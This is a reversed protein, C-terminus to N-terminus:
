GHEIYQLVRSNEIDCEGSYEDLILNYWSVVSWSNSKVKDQSM